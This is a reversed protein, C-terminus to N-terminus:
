HKAECQAAASQLAFNSSCYIINIKSCLHSKTQVWDGVENNKKLNLDKNTFTELIVEFTEAASTKDVRSM